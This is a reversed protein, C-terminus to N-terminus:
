NLPTFQPLDEALILIEERLRKLVRSKAVYVSEIAIGLERAVDPASDRRLWTAEFARWHAPEFHARIRELAAKLVCTNFEAAWEADTGAAAVRNLVEAGEDGGVAAAARVKKEYFRIVRHRTVTGLWDRFRGREPQYEFTQISRAVQVLVDQGVDAADAEQLGQRRCFRYILPAYIDVFTKWSESDRPDRIRVLLSPQTHLTSASDSMLFM